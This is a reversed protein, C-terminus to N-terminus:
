DVSVPTSFTYEDGKWTWTFELTGIEPPDTDGPDSDFVTVSFIPASPAPTDLFTHETRGSLGGVDAGVGFTTGAIPPNFNVDHVSFYIRKSEGDALTIMDGENVPSGEPTGEEAVSITPIGTFLLKIQRAIRKNSDWVDNMGDFDGLLDRDVVLDEFAPDHPNGPTEAGFPIDQSDDDKDLHIDDYTDVFSEGDDYLGNANSDTFEEEGDVVAVITCLGDRPNNADTM